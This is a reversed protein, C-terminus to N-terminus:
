FCNKKFIKTANTKFMTIVTHTCTYIYATRLAYIFFLKQQHQRGTSIIISFFKLILSFPLIVQFAAEKLVWPNLNDLGASKCPKFSVLKDDPAITINSFSHTFSRDPFDPINDINEVAFVSYQFIQTIYWGETYWNDSQFWNGHM